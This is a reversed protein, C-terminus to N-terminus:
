RHDDGEAGFALVALGVIRDCLEAFGIGAAAAAQPILSLDTLGPNTNAELCYFTGDETM